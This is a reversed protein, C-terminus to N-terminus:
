SCGVKYGEAAPEAAPASGNGSVGGGGGGSSPKEAQPPPPPPAAIGQPQSQYQPYPPAGGGQPGQIEMAHM